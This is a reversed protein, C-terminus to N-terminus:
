RMMHARWAAELAALDLKGLAADLAARRAAAKAAALGASTVGRRGLAEIEARWARKLADLYLTLLRPHAPDRSTRLYSVFSWAMTYHLTSDAYFTRQDMGLLAELSPGPRKALESRLWAARGQLPELAVLRGAGFRAGAYVEATGEDFWTHLPLAGATAHLYQHCAEHHLTGLMPHNEDLEADVDERADYLVLEGVNPNFFGSTWAEGGYTLYEGRDRCVRVVPLTDVAGDPPFDVLFRARLTEVRAAVLDLLPADARGHYLVMYHETDRVEWGEVLALRVEVREAPQSFRRQGYHREWQTRRATDDRREDFRMSDACREWARRESKARVTEGEGVVVILDEASAWGHVFLARPAGDAGLLEGSFRHPARGDRERVAREPALRRPRFTDLAWRELAMAADGTHPVRYVRLTAPAASARPADSPAYFLVLGPQGPPLPRAEYGSPRALVLGETPHKETEDVTTGGPALATALLLALCLVM